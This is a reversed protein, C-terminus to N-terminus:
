RFLDDNEIKYKNKGFVKEDDFKTESGEQRNSFPNTRDRFGGIVENPVNDEKIDNDMKQEDTISSRIVEKDSNTNKQVEQKKWETDFEVKESESWSGEERPNYRKETTEIGLELDRVSDNMEKKTKSLDIGTQEALKEIKELDTKKSLIEVTKAKLGIGGDDVNKVIEKDDRTKRQFYRGYIEDIASEELGSAQVMKNIANLRNYIPQIADSDEAVESLQKALNSKEEFLKDVNKLVWNEDTAYGNQVASIEFESLGLQQAMQRNESLERYIPQRAADGEGVESLQKALDTKEKILRDLDKLAQMKSPSNALQERENIEIFEM